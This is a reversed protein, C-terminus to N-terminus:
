AKRALFHLYQSNKPRFTEFFLRTFGAQDLAETVERENYYSFWRSASMGKSTRYGESSGEILGLGLLGDKRLVRHIEALAKNFQSKKVHLLSTYAWVADFQSTEFPLNLFDGQMANLGREQCIKVMAQSADFCVVNFGKSQLILGDRGPGSGVDLVNKGPALDAFREFIKLPFMEWFGTTEEDYARAQSDYSSITQKDM